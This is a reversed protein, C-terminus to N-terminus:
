LDDRDNYEINNVKKERIKKYRDKLEEISLARRTKKSFPEIQSTEGRFEGDLRMAFCVDDYFKDCVDIRNKVKEYLIKMIPNKDIITLTEEDCLDNIEKSMEKITPVPNSEFKELSNYIEDFTKTLTDIIFVNFDDILYNDQAIITEDDFDDNYDIDPVTAFDIESDDYDDSIIDDYNYM